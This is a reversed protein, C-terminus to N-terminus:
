PCLWMILESSVSLNKSLTSCSWSRPLFPFSRLSLERACSWSVDGSIPFAPLTEERILCTQWERLECDIENEFGYRSCPSLLYFYCPHFCSPLFWHTGYASSLLRSKLHSVLFRVSFVRKPSLLLICFLSLFALLPLACHSPSNTNTVLDSLRREVGPILHHFSLSTEIFQGRARRVNRPMWAYACVCLFLYIFLCTKKLLREICDIISALLWPSPFGTWLTKFTFCRPIFRVFISVIFVKLCQLFVQRYYFVCLDKM